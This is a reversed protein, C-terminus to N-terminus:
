CVLTLTQHPMKVHAVLLSKYVLPRVHCYCENITETIHRIIEDEARLNLLQRIDRQRWLKHVSINFPATCMQFLTLAFRWFYYADM